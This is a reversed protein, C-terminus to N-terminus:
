KMLHAQNGESAHKERQFFLTSILRLLLAGALVIAVSSLIRGVLAWSLVQISWLSLIALVLLSLVIGSVIIGIIIKM